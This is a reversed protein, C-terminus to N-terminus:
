QFNVGGLSFAQQKFIFCSSSLKFLFIFLWLLWAVLNFCRIVRRCRLSFLPYQHICVLLPPIGPCVSIRIRPWEAACELFRPMSFSSPEDAGDKQIGYIHTLTRYKNKEKQSVESQLVPELNMWKLEVSECENRKMASDIQWALISVCIYLLSKHNCHPSPSPPVFGSYCQFMYM